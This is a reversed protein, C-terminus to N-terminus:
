GADVGISVGFQSIDPRYVKYTGPISIAFLNCQQNLVIKGYGATSVDAYTGTPTLRQLYLIVGYPIESGDETYISIPLGNSNTVVIDLSAQASVGPSLVIAM